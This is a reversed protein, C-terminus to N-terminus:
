EVTQFNPSYTTRALQLFQLLATGESIEVEFDHKAKSTNSFFKRLVSTAHASAYDLQGQVVHGISQPQERSEGFKCNPVSGGFRCTGSDMYMTCDENKDNVDKPFARITVLLPVLYITM